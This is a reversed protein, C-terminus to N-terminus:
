EVYSYLRDGSDITCGGACAALLIHAIKSDTTGSVKYLNQHLPSKTMTEIKGMVFTSWFIEMDELQSIAKTNEV